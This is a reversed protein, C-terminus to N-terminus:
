GSEVYKSGRGPLWVTFTTGQGVSSEVAIEGGHREVVNHSVTLGLGTGDERTSFFPEFVRKLDEPAIGHGTDSFAVALRGDEAQWSAVRLTGGDPMADVANLVLNIFVQELEDPAVVIPPLDTSLARKIAVRRHQLYKGALALVREAVDNLNAARMERQPPRAFELISAVLNMLREIEEDAIQLYEKQEAAELQFSLMLQLSNHIAQLPNNIEHALSAALRGTATLKETQVLQRQSQEVLKRLEREAQYLRANEIAVATSGALTGLLERDHDDFSAGAKNAAEIVGTVVGRYMLPVGLLTHTDPGALACAPDDACRPDNQVDDVLAARTNQMMWGVIGADAPVRTGIPLAASTGAASTGASAVLRLEDSAPDRLLIATAEAGLMTRAEAMALRLVEDPDLTAIMAQTARNLAALRLRFRHKEVARRTASQVVSADFPKTVYDYAGIRLAEIASELSAYGTLVIVETEPRQERLNRFVKMGEIDPLMLDLLVVSFQEKEILELAQRGSTAPTVDYGLPALCEKLLERMKPDDDIILIKDSKAM